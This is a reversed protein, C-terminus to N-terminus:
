SSIAKSPSSVFERFLRSIQPPSPAKPTPPQPMPFAGSKTRPSKLYPQPPHLTVPSPTSEPYVARAAPRRALDGASIPASGQDETTCDEQFPAPCVLAQCGLLRSKPQWRKSPVELPSSHSPQHLLVTQVQAAKSSAWFCYDEGAKAAWRSNRFMSTGNDCNRAISRSVEWSNASKRQLPKIHSLFRRAPSHPTWLNRPHIFGSGSCSTGCLCGLASLPVFGRSPAESGPLLPQLPLWAAKACPM